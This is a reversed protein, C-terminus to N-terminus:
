FSKFEVPGGCNPCFYWWTESTSKLLLRSQAEYEYGCCDCSLTFVEPLKPPKSASGGLPPTTPQQTAM